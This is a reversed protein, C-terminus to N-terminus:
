KVTLPQAGSWHLDIHTGYDYVRFSISKRHAVDKGAFTFTRDYPLSEHNVHVTLTDDHLVKRTDVKYSKSSALRTSPRITRNRLIETM